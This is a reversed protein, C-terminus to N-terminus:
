FRVISFKVFAGVLLRHSDQNSNNRPRSSLIPFQNPRSIVLFLGARIHHHQDTDETTEKNIVTIVQHGKNNNDGRNNITYNSPHPQLDPELNVRERNYSSFTERWHPNVLFKYYPVLVSPTNYCVSFLM